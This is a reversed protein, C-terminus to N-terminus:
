PSFGRAVFQLDKLGTAGYLASAEGPAGAVMEFDPELDRGRLFERIRTADAMSDAHDATVVRLRPSPGGGRAAALWMALPENRGFYAADREFVSDWAEPYDRQFTTLDPVAPAHVLVSGFRAPRLAAFRLAGWAGMGWGDIARRGPSGGLNWRAEVHPILEELLVQQAPVRGDRTDTFWGLRGGYPWVWAMPPLGAFRIAADLYGMVELHSSENEARGHLHYLVPLLVNTSAGARDPLYLSYGVPRALRESFMVHHRVGPISAAPPNAWSGDRDLARAGPLWSAGFELCALAAEGTLARQVSGLPMEEMRVSLGLGRFAREVDRSGARFRDGAETLWFFGTRERLVVANTRAWAVPGDASVRNTDGGFVRFFAEGLERNTAWERASRFDGGVSIAAGFVEPHAAALRVAGYGGMGAGALLRGGRDSYTRLSRDLLPVLEQVLVLEAPFLGDATNRFWSRATGCPYVVILPPIVRRLVADAVVEPRLAPRSEDGDLDHLWFLVPYRNTRDSPDSYRPPLWLRYGVETRVVASPFQRSELTVGSSAYPAPHLWPSEVPNLSPVAAGSDVTATGAAGLVPASAVAVSFFWAVLFAWRTTPAAHNM